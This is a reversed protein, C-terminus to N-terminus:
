AGRTWFSGVGADGLLVKLEDAGVTSGHDAACHDFAAKYDGGFRAVVLATAQDWLEQDSTM